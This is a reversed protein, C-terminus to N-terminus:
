STKTLTRAQLAFIRGHACVYRANHPRKTKVCYFISSFFPFYSVILAILIKVADNQKSSHQSNNACCFWFNFLLKSTPSKVIVKQKLRRLLQTMCEMWFLLSQTCWVDSCLVNLVIKKGRERERDIVIKKKRRHLKKKRNKHNSRTGLTNESLLMIPIPRSTDLYTINKKITEVDKIRRM